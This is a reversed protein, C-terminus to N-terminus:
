YGGEEKGPFIKKKKKKKKEEEEEEEESVGDPPSGRLDPPAGRIKKCDFSHYFFFSRGFKDSM